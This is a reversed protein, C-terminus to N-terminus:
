IFVACVNQSWERIDPLQAASAASSCDWGEPCVAAAAPTRGAREPLPRGRRVPLTVVPRRGDDPVPLILRYLQAPLPPLTNRISSRRRKNHVLGGYMM